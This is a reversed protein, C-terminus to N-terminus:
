RMKEAKLARMDREMELIMPTREELIQQNTEVKQEIRRLDNRGHLISTAAMGLGLVAAIGMIGAILITLSTAMDSEIFKQTQKLKASAHRLM